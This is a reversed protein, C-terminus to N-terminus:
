TSIASGWGKKEGKWSAGGGESSKREKEWGGVRGKM